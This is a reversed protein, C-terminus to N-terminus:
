RILVQQNKERILRGVCIVQLERKESPSPRPPYHSMYVRNYIVTVNKAGRRRAYRVPFEYACIVQDASRLVYNEVFPSLTNLYIFKKWPIREGRLFQGRMLQRLDRDYDGHLSVVLPICHKRAAWAALFGQVLPNYARIVDPQLEGVLRSVQERQSSFLFALTPNGVAHVCLKASGAQDQVKDASVDRDACSIVHVESFINGPNWYRLKIEGKEVSRYLPDNPFVVLKPRM